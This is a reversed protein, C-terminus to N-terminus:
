MWWVAAEVRGHNRDHEAVAARYFAPNMTGGDVEDCIFVMNGIRDIWMDVHNPLIEDM